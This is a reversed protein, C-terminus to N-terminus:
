SYDTEAVSEMLQQLSVVSQTHGFFVVVAVVGMGPLVFGGLLALVACGPLAVAAFPLDYRTVWDALWGGLLVGSSTGVFYGTLAANAVILSSGHFTM